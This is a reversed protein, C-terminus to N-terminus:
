YISLSARLWAVNNLKVCSRTDKGGKGREESKVISELPVNKMSLMELAFFVVPRRCDEIKSIEGPTPRTGVENNTQRESFIQTDRDEEPTTNKHAM